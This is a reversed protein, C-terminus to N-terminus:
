VDRGMRGSRDIKVRVNFNIRRRAGDGSGGATAAAAAAAAAQRAGGFLDGDRERFFLTRGDRSINLDSIGGGFGGGGGASGEGDAAPPGGATVRTLRRGDDQISYIM